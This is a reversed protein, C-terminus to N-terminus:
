RYDFKSLDVRNKKEPKPINNTTQKDSSGFDKNYQGELVNVFKDPKIFWDFGFGFSGSKLFKSSKVNEIAKLFNDYGHEKIRAKVKKARNHQITVIKSVKDSDISNWSDMIEQKRTASLIFNEDADDDTVEISTRLHKKNNNDTNSMDTNSPPLYSRDQSTINVPRVPLKSGDQSTTSVSVNTFTNVYIKNPKRLGQRHREILKFDELTNLMTGVKKSSIGFIEEIEERTYYVYVRGNEDRWGNKSSLSMRDLLLAYLFKHEISLGKYGEHQILLKPVRVYNYLDSQWGTFWNNNSM